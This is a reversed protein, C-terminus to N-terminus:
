TNPLVHDHLNDSMWAQTAKAMHSPLSDQQFVYPRGNRASDIWPKVARVLQEQFAAVNVRLAQSFLHPPIIVRVNSIIGLVMVTAPFKTHM